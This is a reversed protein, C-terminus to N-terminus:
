VNSGKIGTSQRQALRPKNMEQKDPCTFSQTHTDTCCQPLDTCRSEQSNSSRVNPISHFTKKGRIFSYKKFPNHKKTKKFTMQLIFFVRNPFIDHSSVSQWCSEQSTLSRLQVRKPTFFASKMGCHRSFEMLPCASHM